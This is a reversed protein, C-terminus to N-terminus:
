TNVDFKSDSLCRKYNIFYHDEYLGHIKQHNWSVIKKPCEEDGYLEFNQFLFACKQNQKFCFQFRILPNSQEKFENHCHLSPNKTRVQLVLELKPNLCQLVTLNPLSITFESFTSRTIEKTLPNKPSKLKGSSLSHFTM